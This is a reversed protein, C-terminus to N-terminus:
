ENIINLYGPIQLNKNFLYVFDKILESPILIDEKNSYADSLTDVIRNISLLDASNLKIIKSQSKMNEM